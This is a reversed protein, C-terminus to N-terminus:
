MLSEKKYAVVKSGSNVGDLFRCAASRSWCLVISFASEREACCARAPLVRLPETQRNGRRHQINHRM